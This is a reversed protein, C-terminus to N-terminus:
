LRYLGREPDGHVHRHRREDLPRVLALAELANAVGEDALSYYRHRGQTRVALLRGDVLKHLHESATSAAVGAVRAPESALEGVAAVDYRAGPLLEKAQVDYPTASEIAEAV